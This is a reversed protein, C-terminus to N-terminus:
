PTVGTLRRHLFARAFTWDRKVTAASRGLAEAAEEITLGGFFRLEVIRAGEPDAEALKTLADDLDLLEVGRPETVAASIMLSRAGEGGRKKAARARAYDVLIRRMTQAAVAFFHARDQWDIDRGVLRLYAEHVVATPQLTHGTRERRVYQEALKHLEPYVLSILRKPAETDGERWARLVRTVEGAPAGKAAPPERGPSVTKRRKTPAPIIGDAPGDM